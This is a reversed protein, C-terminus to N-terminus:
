RLRGSQVKKAYFGTVNKRIQVRFHDKKDNIVYM